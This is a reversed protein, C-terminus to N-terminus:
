FTCAILSCNHFRNILKGQDNPIPCIEGGTYSFYYPKKNTFTSHVMEMEATTDADLVMYRTISSFLLFCSSKKLKMLKDLIEALTLLVEPYDIDGIALTAGQPMRGSFLVYGEPTVSYGSRFVPKTGDRYDLMFAFSLSIGRKLGLIGLNELYTQLLMGNVEKVLNGQSKTIVAKQRQIKAEPISVVFFSPHIDGYILLFSLADQKGEGNFLTYTRSFDLIDIYDVAQIGFLPLGGSIKDLTEVILEGSAQSTLPACAILLAPEGPLKQRAQQYASRLQEEPDLTLSSSVGASFLAEDSTLVMLCLMMEGLAGSVANGATTCGIVDFPLAECIGKTVGTEVFEAYCSMLGVSHTQLNRNIDLQALIESVARDLEDIEFTYATIVKIM